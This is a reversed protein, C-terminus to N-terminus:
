KKYNKIEKEIQAKIENGEMRSNKSSRDSFYIEMNGLYYYDFMRDEKELKHKKLPIVIKLDRMFYSERNLGKAGHWNSQKLQIYESTITVGYYGKSRSSHPAIAGTRDAIKLYQRQKSNIEFKSKPKTENWEFNKIKKSMNKELESAIKENSCYFKYISFLKEQIEIWTELFTQEDEDMLKLIVFDGSQELLLSYKTGTTEQVNKQIDELYTWFPQLNDLVTKTKMTQANSISTLLIYSIILSKKLM